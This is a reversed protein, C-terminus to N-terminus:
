SASTQQSIKYGESEKHFSLYVLRYPQSDEPIEHNSKIGIRPNRIQDLFRNEIWFLNKISYFLPCELLRTGFGESTGKNWHFWHHLTVLHM